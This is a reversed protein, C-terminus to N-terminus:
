SSVLPVREEQLPDGRALTERNLTYPFINIFSVTQDKLVSPQDFFYARHVEKHLINSTDLSFATRGDKLAQHPMQLRYSVPNMLLNEIRFVVTDRLTPITHKQHALPVVHSRGIPERLRFTHPTGDSIRDGKQRLRREIAGGM